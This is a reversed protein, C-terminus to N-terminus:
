RRAGQYHRMREDAEHVITARVRRKAEYLLADARAICRDFDEGHACSVVGTSFTPRLTREEFVAGDPTHPLLPPEEERLERAARELVGTAAQPDSANWLGLVFEDGGWCAVWDGRRLSRGLTDAVRKILADGAAHGLSDNTGKLGNLDLVVLTVSKGDRGARALDGALREEGTRRNYLGTLRDKSSIEELFRVTRELRRLKRVSVASGLM